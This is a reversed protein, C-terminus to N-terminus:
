EQFGLDAADDQQNDDTENLEKLEDEEIVDPPSMIDDPINRPSSTESVEVQMDSAISYTMSHGMGRDLYEIISQGSGYFPDNTTSWGNAIPSGERPINPEEPSNDVKGLDLTDQVEDSEKPISEEKHEESTSSSDSKVAGEEPKALVENQPYSSSKTDRSNGSEDANDGNERNQEQMNELSKPMEKPSKDEQEDCDSSNQRHYLIQEVLRDHDGKEALKRFRSFRAERLIQGDPWSHLNPGVPGQDQYIDASFSPGLTFSEHRCFIDRAQSSALIEQQFGDTTLNPKEEHPDYPIDFPNRAPLLVSPASGPIQSDMMDEESGGPLIVFPNNKSLQVPPVHSSRANSDLDLLHPQGRLATMLKRARRKAILNELRRNRELESFGLDMVNKQDDETWEVVRNGEDQAQDEEDDDEAEELEAEVQSASPGSNGLGNSTEDGLGIDLKQPDSDGAVPAPEDLFNEAKRSSEGQDPQFHVQQQGVIPNEIEEKKESKRIIFNDDPVSLEAQKVEVPGRDNLDERRTKFNRRKSMQASIVPKKPRRIPTGELASDSNSPQFDQGPKGDGKFHEVKRIASSSSLYRTIGTAICTLIPISYVLLKFVFPFLLYLLFFFLLVGSALPYKQVYSSVFKVSLGLFKCVYLKIDKAEIAM